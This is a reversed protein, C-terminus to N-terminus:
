NCSSKKKLMEEGSMNLYEQCANEKKKKLLKFESVSLKSKNALVDASAKNFEDGVAICNCFKEDKQTCAVLFLVIIVLHKKM